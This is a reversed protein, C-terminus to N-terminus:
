RERTISDFIEIAWATDDADTLVADVETYPQVPPRVTQQVNLGDWTQHGLSAQWIHDLTAPDFPEM